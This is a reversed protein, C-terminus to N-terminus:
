NFGVTNDDRERPTGNARCCEAETGTCLPSPLPIFVGLSPFFCHSLFVCIPHPSEDLSFSRQLDLHVPHSAHNLAPPQSPCLSMHSSSSPCPDFFPQGFFPSFFPLPKTPLLSKHSRLKLLGFSSLLCAAVSFSVASSFTHASQYM